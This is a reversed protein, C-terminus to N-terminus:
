MINMVAVLIFKFLIQRKMFGVISKNGRLVLGRDFIWDLINLKQLCLIVPLLKKLKDSCM